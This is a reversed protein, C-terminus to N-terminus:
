DAGRRGGAGGAGPVPDRHAHGGVGGEAGPGGAGAAWLGCWSGGGGGDQEAGRALGAAWGAAAPRSRRAALGRPRAQASAPCARTPPAAARVEPSLAVQRPSSFQVTEAPVQGPPWSTPNRRRSLPPQAAKGPACSTVQSEM